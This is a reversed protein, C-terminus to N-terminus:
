RPSLREKLVARCYTGAELMFVLGLGVTFGLIGLTLALLTAAQLPHNTSIVTKGLPGSYIIPAKGLEAAMKKEIEAMRALERKQLSELADRAAEESGAKAAVRVLNGSFSAKIDVSENLTATIKIREALQRPLEVYFTKTGNLFYGVEIHGAAKYQREELNGLALGALMGLIALTALLRRSKILFALLEFFDFPHSSFENKSM